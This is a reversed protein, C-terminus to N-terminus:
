RARLPAYRRTTSLPEISLNSHRGELLDTVIRGTIGGLTLGLHQHGFAHIIRDTGPAYGLVPLSDPMTPRFGIWDSTPAPLDGFRERGKRALYDLRNRNKPADIAAIEVTGALRLGRAMPVGYFGGEGWGVPRTIRGAEGAYLLHYGRETGLPLKEAGGGWIRSSFAGAAVVARTATVESSFTRLIVHDPQAKVETVKEVLTFGAEEEFAAHFRRVLAEPDHVHRAEPFLAARHIPLTIGPELAQAEEPSLEQLTVGLARRRDLGSQADRAGQATSWLSLQGRAHILDEAGAAEILPNLGADAQALLGALVGAIHDSRGARCNALFGLMWRPNRLAHRFSFALPSDRATLLQPLGTIVSPDNVPLCGYTAITCANGSSTGSGPPAPDILLVRFGRLQAWLATATGVIGAGIIAVDYDAM